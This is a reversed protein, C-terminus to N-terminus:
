AAYELAGGNQAVAVRVLERDALLEPAAYQLAYANKGVAVRVLERDAQLEEPAGALLQPM